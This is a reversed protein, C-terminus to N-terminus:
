EGGREGEVLLIALRERGILEAMTEFFYDADMGAYMNTVRDLEKQATAHPDDGPKSILCAAFEEPTLIAIPMQVGAAICLRGRHTGDIILVDGAKGDAEPSIRAVIGVPGRVPPLQGGNARRLLCFEHGPETEGLGSALIDPDVWGDIRLGVMERAKDVNFAWLDGCDNVPYTYTQTQTGFCRFAFAVAWCKVCRGGNRVVSEAEVYIRNLTLANTKLQMIAGERKTKPDYGSRESGGKV